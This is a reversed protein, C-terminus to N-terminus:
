VGWHAGYTELQTIETSNLARNFVIMECLTLAQYGSTNTEAGLRVNGSVTNLSSSSIQVQQRNIRQTVVSSSLTVVWLFPTGSQIQYSSQYDTVWGQVAANAPSGSWKVLGFTANASNTGWSVGGFASVFSNWRAVLMVTRDSTGMPLGTDPGTMVTSVGDFTIGPMGNVATPNYLPQATNTNQVITRSTGVLDQWGQVPDNLATALGGGRKLVGSDTRLWMALNGQGPLSLVPRTVSIVQPLIQVNSPTVTVTVANPGLATGTLTVSASLPLGPGFSLVAPSVTVSNDSSSLVVSMAAAPLTSLTVTVSAQTATGFRDLSVSTQSLQMTPVVLGGGVNALKFFYPGTKMARM